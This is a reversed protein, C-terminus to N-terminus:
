ILEPGSKKKVEKHFSTLFSPSPSKKKFFNAKFIIKIFFLCSVNIFKHKADKSQKNRHKHVLEKALPSIEPNDWCVYVFDVYVSIKKIFDKSTQEFTKIAENYIPLLFDGKAVSKLNIHKWASKIAPEWHKFLYGADLVAVRFTPENLLYFAHRLAAEMNEVKEINARVEDETWYKTVGM